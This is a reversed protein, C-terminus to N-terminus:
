VARGMERAIEALRELRQELPPHTAFLGTVRKKTSAPIIFFANMAEVERLDRKPIRFMDSAIKQLASMLNEPAGTLLAAGRDAAFERYRSIALILIQSLFYTVVSVLLVILWIPPGNSDRDRGGGFMGAYMMFRTLIGALMAFFSALTMILVDRNAVHSLEHALVGEVEHRELREWLGRTVAVAAHKPSRGTAFANPMDTDIVAVKPKPLDAMACLREVMDHLQPAQDREVVKAGSAALALKDSTFYQFLAIGVVILVMPILGVNLFQFLVVAFVVYLLGLLSGTLLMRLTLGADRGYAKRKM